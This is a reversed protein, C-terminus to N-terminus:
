TTIHWGVMPVNWDGMRIVTVDGSEYWNQTKLTGQTDIKTGDMGGRLKGVQETLRSVQAQQSDVADRVRELDRQRPTQHIKCPSQGLPISCGFPLCCCCCCCSCCVVVGVVDFIPIM